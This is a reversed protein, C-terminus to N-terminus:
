VMLLWYLSPALHSGEAKNLLLRSNFHGGVFREQLHSTLLAPDWILSSAM